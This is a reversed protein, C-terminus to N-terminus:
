KALGLRNIWEQITELEFFGKFIRDREENYLKAITERSANKWYHFMPKIWEVFADEANKLYKEAYKDQWHPLHFTFYNYLIFQVIKHEMQEPKIKEIEKYALSCARIFEPISNYTYIANNRRTISNPNHKWVYSNIPLYRHNQSLSEAICLFYSDEHVRLEDHFRINNQTLFNRRLLKGHMWTNEIEHTVYALNGNQDLNEEIWSTCLIDPVTSEAEKLLSRIVCVNHLIDDADCFMVYDGNAIDLGRQRTVGPGSNVGENIIQIIEFNFLEIFCREFPKGGGGDTSIIVEIDSFDVGSQNNISTLLPFLDNSLEDYRPIIISLKKM